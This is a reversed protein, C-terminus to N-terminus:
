FLRAQQTPAPDLAAVDRHTEWKGADDSWALRVRWWEPLTPKRRRNPANADFPEGRVAYVPHRRGRDVVLTGDTAEDPTV